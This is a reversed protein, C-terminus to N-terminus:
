KKIVKFSKILIDDKFVKLIYIGKIISTSNFDLRYDDNVSSLLVMEEYIKKGNTDVLIVTHPLSISSKTRLNIHDNFPNPFISISEDVYEVAVEESIDPSSNQVVMQKIKNDVRSNSNPSNLFLVTSPVVRKSIGPGAYRVELVESGSREFFEVRIAHYGSSLSVSGSRERASHLGDNDVVQNGNIFLKSGDDSTTYFTYSGGNDIKIFGEYSFGFNENRNRPSMSFSSVVGSKVASLQNFNPVTSWTGEYYRYQLGSTLDGTPDNPTPEDPSPASAGGSEQYLVTSPVVRKSIGPGAYRVELM